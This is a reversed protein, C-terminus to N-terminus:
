LLLWSSVLILGVLSVLVLAILVIVVILLGKAGVMLESSMWM